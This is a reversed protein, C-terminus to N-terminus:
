VPHSDSEEAKQCFTGWVYQKTECNTVALAGYTRLSDAWLQNVLSRVFITSDCLSSVYRLVVTVTLAQAVFKWIFVFCVELVFNSGFRACSGERLLVGSRVLCLQLYGIM